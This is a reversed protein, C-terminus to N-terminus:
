FGATLRLARAADVFGFGSGFQLHGGLKASTGAKASRALNAFAAREQTQQQPPTAALAAATASAFALGGLLRYIGRTM